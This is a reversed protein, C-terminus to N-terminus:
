KQIRSLEKIIKQNKKLCILHFFATAEDDLIPLHVRHSDSPLHRLSLDTSFHPLVSASALEDFDFRDNQVLFRSHPLYKAHIRSWFGIESMVFMNEGDFERFYVGDKRSALHHNPTVSLYLHETVYPICLTDPDDTKYPLIILQYHENKLGTLLIDEDRLESSITKDAYHRSLEPLLIWLPAPACSGVLITHRARELARTQEVMTEVEALIRRAHEVAYKGNENLSMKNKTREFLLVQLDHELAQMSRSLSPQSIHLEKAAASLTGHQAFAILCRLQEMEPM